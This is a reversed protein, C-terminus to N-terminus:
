RTGPEQLNAAGAYRRVAEILWSKANQLAPEPLTGALLPELAAPIEASGPPLTRGPKDGAASSEVVSRAREALSSLVTTFEETTLQGDRNVDFREVLSRALQEIPSATQLPNISM